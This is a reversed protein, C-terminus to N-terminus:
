GEARPPAEDDSRQHQHPTPATDRPTGPKETHHQPEKSGHGANRSAPCLCTLPHAARSALLAGGVPAAPPPGGPGTPLLSPSVSNKANKRWKQVTALPRGAAVATGRASVGADLAANILAQQTETLTTQATALAKLAELVQRDPQDPRAETDALAMAAAIAGAAMAECSVRCRERERDDM